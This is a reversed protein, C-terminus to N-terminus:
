RGTEGGDGLLRTPVQWSKVQMRKKAGQVRSLKVESKKERKKSRRPESKPEIKSGKQSGLQNM